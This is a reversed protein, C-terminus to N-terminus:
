AQPQVSEAEKKLRNKRVIASAVYALAFTLAAFILIYVFVSKYAAAGPDKDLKSGILLAMWMDPTYAIMAVITTITGTLERPVSLEELLTFQTANFSYIMLSGIVILAVGLGCYKPDGPLLIFAIGVLFMIVELVMVNQSYRKTKDNIFGMIPGTFLSIGYNRIIAITGALVVSMGMVNTLYPTTYDNVVQVAYATMSMFAVIWVAPLKLCQGIEKLTVKKSKETTVNPSLFWNCVSIAAYFAAYFLLVPRFPTESTAAASYIGLAAFNVAMSAIARMLEAGGFSKGQGSKNGFARLCKVAAPVMTDVCIGLLAQIILLETFSHAFAYWVTLAAMLATPLTIAKRGGLADSLVGCPIYLVTKVITYVSMMTAIDTNTLGYAAMLPDYFVNKIFPVRFITGYAVTLAAFALLEKFSVRDKNDAM